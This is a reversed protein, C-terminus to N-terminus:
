EKSKVNHGGMLEDSWPGYFDTVILHEAGFDTFPTLRRQNEQVLEMVETPDGCRM